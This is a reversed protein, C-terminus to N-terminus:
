PGEKKAEMCLLLKGEKLSSREGEGGATLVWSPILVAKKWRPDGELHLFNPREDFKRGQDYSPLRKKGEARPTNQSSIRRLVDVNKL